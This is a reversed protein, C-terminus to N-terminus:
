IYFYIEDFIIKKIIAKWSDQGKNRASDKRVYINKLPVTFLHATKQLNAIYRSYLWKRYKSPMGGYGRLKAEYLFSNIIKFGQFHFFIVPTGNAFFTNESIQFQFNAVNWPALSASPTQLIRVNNFLIPFQDLYKQDAFKDGEVKDYCWEICRQRWWSLSDIASHDRRFMIFGVNFKGYQEQDIHNKHFRHADIMISYGEFEEFLPEPSQLLFIDADIYTLIDVEPYNNLVYLLLSPTCTFIYEVWNRNEKAALLNTDEKEFESLPIAILNGLGTKQIFEETENDLCLVFLTFSEAHKQLSRFLTLGLILYNKDFYTCFFKM